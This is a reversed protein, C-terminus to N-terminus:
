LPELGRTVRPREAELSRSLVAESGGGVGWGQAEGLANCEWLTVHGPDSEKEDQRRQIGTNQEWDGPQNQTSVHAQGVVPWLGM